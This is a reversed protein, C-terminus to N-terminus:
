LFQWPLYTTAKAPACARFLKSIKKKAFYKNLTSVSQEKFLIFM